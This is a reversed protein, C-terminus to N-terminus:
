IRSYEYYGYLGFRYVVYLLVGSWSWFCFILMSTITRIASSRVRVCSLELKTIIWEADM